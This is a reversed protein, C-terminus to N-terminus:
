VRTTLVTSKIFNGYWFQHKVEVWEHQQLVFEWRPLEKADIRCVARFFMYMMKLMWEHWLKQNVFDSVFWKSAPHTFSSVHQIVSKLKEEPFLDLYFNTIVADFKLGDPIDNETGSIFHIENRFKRQEAKKLMGESIEVYWIKSSPNKDAIKELLWGTGGGLILISSSKSIENLFYIQAQFISKGFVVKALMDYIPALLDFGSSTKM